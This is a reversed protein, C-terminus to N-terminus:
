EAKLRDIFIGAQGLATALEPVAPFSQDFANGKWKGYVRLESAARDFIVKIVDHGVDAPRDPEWQRLDDASYLQEVAAGNWTQQLLALDDQAKKSFAQRAAPSQPMENTDLVAVRIVAPGPKLIVRPAPAPEAKTGPTAVPAEVTKEGALNTQAEAPNEPSETQRGGQFVPILALGLVVGGAVLGLKWRSVPEPRAKRTTPATLSAPDAEARLRDFRVKLEPRQLLLATLEASEQKTARGALVKAALKLYRQDNGPNM